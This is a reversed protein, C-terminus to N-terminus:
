IVVCGEMVVGVKLQSSAWDLWYNLRAQQEHSQGGLVGGKETGECSLRCIENVSFISEGSPLM